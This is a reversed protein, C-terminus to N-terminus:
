FKNTLPVALKKYLFSYQYRQAFPYPLLTACWSPSSFAKGCTQPPTVGPCTFNLRLAYLFTDIECDCCLFPVCPTCALHSSWNHVVSSHPVDVDIM